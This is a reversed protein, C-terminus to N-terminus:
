QPCDYSYIIEDIKTGTNIGVVVDANFDLTSDNKGLPAVKSHTSLLLIRERGCLSFEVLLEDNGYQMSSM